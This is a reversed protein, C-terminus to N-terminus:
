VSCSRKAVGAQYFTSPGIVSASWDSQTSSFDCDAVVNTEVGDWSVVLKSSTRSTHIQNELTGCYCHHSLNVEKKTSPMSIEMTAASM